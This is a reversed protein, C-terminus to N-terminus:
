DLEDAPIERALRERLPRLAEAHHRWRGVADDYLPRRIQVASATASPARSEHFRLVEEEWPLGLLEVLRRSAGRQDRVIDEYAIEIFADGPLTTRWHEALRRFALYYQALEGLDYSFGFTGQFHAKYLSYCTDMPHRRVLIMKAAPLAARIFGCYLYNQLTKDVFRRDTAVGLAAISAVYRQGLRGTDLDFARVPIPGIARGRMEAMARTVERALSGTEGASVVASHSAVIREVVTTGSRPLGMVFIPAAAAHGPRVAGLWAATQTRFVREIMQLDGRPDYATRRRHVHAGAAVHAFSRAHDGLDECEKGLAFRLLVEDQWRLTGARLLAEMEFIHNAEPTQQRLDARLYHALAYGPDAAIAADCHTEADSLAGLMRETAALNFLAQPAQPRLAVARGFLALARQHRGLLGFVGGLADIAEAPANPVAAGADAAALADAHEGRQLHTKALMAHALPMQPGLRVARTAHALAADPDGRRLAIESLMTWPWAAHPDADGLRRCLTEAAALDGAAFALRAQDIARDGARAGSARM